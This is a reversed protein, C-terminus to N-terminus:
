LCLQTETSLIKQYSLPCVRLTFTELAPSGHLFSDLSCFDYDPSFSPKFLLIELYKLHIFKGHVMPTNVIQFFTGYLINLHTGVLYSHLTISQCVFFISVEYTSTLFLTQLNPAMSPLKTSASYLMNSDDFSSMHIHRLKIPPDGLSIHITLRGLYSFQSLNPASSEIIELM